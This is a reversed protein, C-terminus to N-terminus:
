AGKTQAIYKEVEDALGPALSESQGAEEARQIQVRGVGSKAAGNAGNTGGWELARKMGNRWAAEWDTYRYKTTNARMSDKWQETAALINLGPVNKKAWIKMADTIAFGSPLSIAIKSHLPSPPTQAAEEERKIEKLKVKEIIGEPMGETDPPYGDPMGETDGEKNSADEPMWEPPEPLRSAVFKDKPVNQYSRWKRFAIYEKGGARYHVLSALHKCLDARLKIVDAVKVDARYGFIIKKLQRPDAEIRGEDDANSFLGVFLRFADGSLEGIDPDDWISPDIMRRKAM